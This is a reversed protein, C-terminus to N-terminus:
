YGLFVDELSAERIQIDLVADPMALLHALVSMKAEKPCRLTAQDEKIQLTCDPMSQMLTQLADTKGLALQLKFTIPITTQTRLAQLSGVVQIKGSRMIALREVRDQIEALIHSTIIITVGEDRKDLLLQYFAQVGEPDLGNTPEDLFLIKPQGLIAQAFGLRQRMGKSYSKVRRKAAEALGVKELLAPCEKTSVGRLRAFFCLTELGTLNDYLVVNEPLYGLSRRVQRFDSGTVSRGDVCISGSTPAILGLMMKFLTSKGAGNHGILGFLEGANVDLSVEDVALNQGYQKVVDRIEIM